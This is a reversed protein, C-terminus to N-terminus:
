VVPLSIRTLTGGGTRNMLRVTGDVYNISAHSLYLGLGVSEHKSSKVLAFGNLAIAEDIGPGNDQIDILLNGRSGAERDLRVDIHLQQPSADAANNLLNLVALRLSATVKVQISSLDEAIQWCANVQPRLLQFEQRIEAIVPLFFQASPLALSQLETKTRLQALEKKCIDVQAQLIDIEPMAEALAPMSKLENVIVAITSLPTGMHHAVSAAETAIGLLQERKLVEERQQNTKIIQAQLRAAMMAVVTCVLVAIIAFNVWMGLVHLSFATAEPTAPMAHGSHASGIHASGIHASHDVMPVLPKSVPAPLVFLAAYLALSLLLLGYTMARGLIAAGVVLPFLLFSVFPNSAGGSFYFLAFMFLLDLALQGGIEIPALESAGFVRILSVAAVLAFVALVSYMGTGVIAFEWFRANLLVMMAAFLIVVWRVIIILLLQHKGPSLTAL